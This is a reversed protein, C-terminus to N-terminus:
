SFKWITFAALVLLVSHGLKDNVIPAISDLDDLGVNHPLSVLHSCGGSRLLKVVPLLM